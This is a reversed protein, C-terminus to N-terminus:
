YSDPAPKKPCRADGHVYSFVEIFSKSAARFHQEFRKVLNPADATRASSTVAACADRYDLALESLGVVKKFESYLCRSSKKAYMFPLM